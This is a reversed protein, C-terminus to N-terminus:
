EYVLVVTGDSYDSATGEGPDTDTIVINRVQDVSLSAMASPSAKVWSALTGSTITSASQTHSSAAKGDLTAQLGSVQAITHTHSTPAAGIQAATVAHPNNTDAKHENILALLNGATDEDLVTQIQEFWAGFEANANTTWDALQEDAKDIWASAQANFTSMDIQSVLGTVVGCVSSDYRKDTVAGTGLSTAAAAVLVDALALEYIDSDRQLAPASPSAAPTGSKAVVTISRDALAWRVVIRDKRSRAGDPTELEISLDSTNSYWYGNIWAKGASVTVATGTAAASVQLNSAPNPFVGNGVLSAFYAAWDEAKYKRDGSVSNFFSSKEAM